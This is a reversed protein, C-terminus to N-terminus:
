GTGDQGTGVEGPQDLARRLAITAATRDPAMLIASIVAVGAAGAALADAVREPGVGGIAIVPVPVSRAVTALTALGRPEEDPHSATAFIHGFTLWDAGAAAATMAAELSHVSAGIRLSGAIPRAIAVPLSREGLQVGDAGVALAVDLRDNVAVRVRRPRCVAIVEQALAALARASAAPDRVHVWDVGAEAAAAVSALLASRSLRADTILHLQPRDRPTM